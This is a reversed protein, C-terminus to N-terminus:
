EGKYSEPLPQWAKLEDTHANVAGEYMLWHDYELLEAITIYGNETTALVEVNKEPLRESVPIWKPEQELAQIAMDLAISQADNKYESEGNGTHRIYDLIAIAEYKTM